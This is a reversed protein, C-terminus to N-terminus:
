AARRVAGLQPRAQTAFRSITSGDDFTYVIIAPRGSASRAVEHGPDTQRLADRLAGLESRGKARAKDFAALVAEAKTM